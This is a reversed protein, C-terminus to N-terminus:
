TGPPVRRSARKAAILNVLAAQAASLVYWTVVFAGGELAFSGFRFFLSALIFATIFPGAERRLAIEVGFERILSFM